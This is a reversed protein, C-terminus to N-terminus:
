TIGRFKETKIEDLFDLIKIFFASKEVYRKYFFASEKVYRRNKTIEQLQKKM